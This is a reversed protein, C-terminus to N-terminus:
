KVQVWVLAYLKKLWLRLDEDVRRLSDQKTRSQDGGYKRRESRDKNM